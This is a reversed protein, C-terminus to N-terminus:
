FHQKFDPNKPVWLMQTLWHVAHTTTNVHCVTINCWSCQLFGSIECAQQIHTACKYQRVSIINKSEYRGDKETQVEFM